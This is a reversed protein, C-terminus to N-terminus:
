SIGDRTMALAPKCIGRLVGLTSWGCSQAITCGVGCGRKKKLPRQAVETNAKDLSCTRCDVQFIDGCTGGPQTFPLVECPMRKKKWSLAGPATM